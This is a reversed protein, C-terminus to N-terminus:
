VSFGNRFWPFALKKLSENSLTGAWFTPKFILLYQVDHFLAKMWSIRSSETLMYRWSVKKKDLSGCRVFALSASRVHLETRSRLRIRRLDMITKSIRIRPQSKVAQFDHQKKCQDKVPSIKFRPPKMLFTNLQIKTVGTSKYILM